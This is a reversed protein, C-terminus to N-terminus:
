QAQNDPSCKGGCTLLEKLKSAQIHEGIKDLFESIILLTNNYEHSHINNM